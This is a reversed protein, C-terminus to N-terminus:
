QPSVKCEGRSDFCEGNTCFGDGCQTDTLCTKRVCVTQSCLFTSACELGGGCTQAQCRRTTGNCVSGTPCPNTAGCGPACDTQGACACPRPSCIGGGCQDDSACTSPEPRCTGCLPGSEPSVCNTAAGLCDANDRCCTRDAMCPAGPCLPPRAGLLRCGQYTPACECGECFQAQCQPTARCASASLGECVVGGDSLGADLGSGADTSGADTSGADTSGGDNGGGDALGGDADGGDRGLGSDTAGAGGDFTPGLGCQCGSAMLLFLGFYLRM